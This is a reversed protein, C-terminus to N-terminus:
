NCHVAECDSPKCDKEDSKCHAQGDTNCECKGLNQFLEPKATEAKDAWVGSNILFSLAILAIKMSIEKDKKFLGYFNYCLNKVKLM